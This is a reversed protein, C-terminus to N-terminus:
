FSDHYFPMASAFCFLGVIFCRGSCGVFLAIGLLLGSWNKKLLWRARLHYGV